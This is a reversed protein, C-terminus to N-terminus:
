GDLSPPTELPSVDAIDQALELVGRYEGGEDRLALYRVQVLRGKVKELFEAQDRWGQRLESILQSVRGRVGPSHCDVVNSGIADPTRRFIRYAESYYRVEDNEDVFTVDMPIAALILKMQEVTLAGTDLEVLDPSM